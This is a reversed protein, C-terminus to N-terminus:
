NAWPTVILRRVYLTATQGSTGTNHMTRVYYQTGPTFFSFMKGMMAQVNNNGQNVVGNGQVATLVVTGAANTLRVEYTLATAVGAGANTLHGGVDIRARGTPPAVFTVDCAPSGVAFGTSTTTLTTYDESMIPEPPWM